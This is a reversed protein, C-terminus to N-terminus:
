FLEGKFARQMLANFNNELEVLSQEMEFKLKDVQQVFQGFQNQLEIPPIIFDLDNLIGMTLYRTNSGKSQHRLLALKGELQHKFLVYSWENNKLTLVYTRQYANFKGKYHKVDYIGAANNGALLLAESDFAYEDIWFQEKACTFFPYKGNEVMANSDLKGTTTEFVNKWQVKQWGKPNIVPDGFMEIFQSKILEDCAQIQEKRLDILQQAKDLALSISKQISLKEFPIEVELLSSQSVSPQGSTNAYQNLNKYNLLYYLYKIDVDMKFDTVYLANDTIWSKPETIHVCGCYAGVRGIILTEHEVTFESHTGNIGNGGYVNYKGPNMNKQPLFKGSSLSICEGLKIKRM